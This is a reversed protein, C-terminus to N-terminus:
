STGNPESGWVRSDHRISVNGDRAFDRLMWSLMIRRIV